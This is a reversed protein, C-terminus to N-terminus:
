PRHAVLRHATTVTALLHKIDMAAVTTVTALLLKTAM